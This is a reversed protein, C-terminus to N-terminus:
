KSFSNISKQMDVPISRMTTEHLWQIQRQMDMMSKSNQYLTNRTTQALMRVQYIRGMMEDAVQQIHL